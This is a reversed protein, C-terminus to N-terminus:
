LLILCLVLKSNDDDDKHQLENDTEFLHSSNDWPCDQTFMCFRPLVLYSNFRHLYGRNSKFETVACVYNVKTLQYGATFDRKSLMNRFINWDADATNVDTRGHSM